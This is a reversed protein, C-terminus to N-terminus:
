SLGMLSNAVSLERREKRQEQQQQLATAPVSNNHHHPVSQGNICSIIMYTDIQPVAQRLGMYKATLDGKLFFVLQRPFAACESLVTLAYKSPVNSADLLMELTYPSARAPLSVQKVKSEGAVADFFYAQLKGGLQVQLFNPNYIPVRVLLKLMYTGRTTNWSMQQSQVTIEGTSMGRPVLIFVSTAVM